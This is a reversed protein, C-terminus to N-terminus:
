GDSAPEKKVRHARELAAEFDFPGLDHESPSVGADALLKHAAANYLSHLSITRELARQALYKFGYSRVVVPIMALRAEIENLSDRANLVISGNAEALVQDAFVATARYCSTFLLVIRLLHLYTPAGLFFDDPQSRWRELGPHDDIGSGIRVVQLSLAGADARLEMALSRKSGHLDRTLLHALEHYLLFRDMAQYSLEIELALRNGKGIEERLWPQLLEPARPLNQEHLNVAHNQLPKLLDHLDGAGLGEIATHVWEKSPDATDLGSADTAKLHLNKMTVAFERLLSFHATSVVIYNCLDGRVSSSAFDIIPLIRVVTPRLEALAPHDDSMESLVILLELQLWAEVPSAYSDPDGTWGYDFRSFFFPNRETLLRIGTLIRAIESKDSPNSPPWLEPELSFLTAVSAFDADIQPRDLM